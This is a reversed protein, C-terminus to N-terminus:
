SFDEEDGSLDSIEKPADNQNSKEAKNKEAAEEAALNEQRRNEEKQKRSALVREETVAEEFCLNFEDADMTEHKVLYDAIFDLVLRRESLIKKAIEYGNKIIRIVEADIKAAIEESYNRSTGLDRGLFVEEHEDGYLIPGLQESMGYRMVMSRAIKSAREIDNSAGTSYNGDGTLEEAVRGALLMAIEAQMENRYMSVKDENPVAVTVGLTRGSPIISIHRVPDLGPLEHAIIAHGAEHYATNRKEHANLILSRKSPGVLEKMIADEIDNMNIVSKKRRAALLAAENLINALDAGTMGATSRAIVELDVDNGLPKNRAHVKLIETRGKIDPRNVTVQRDFRGPRLLAPDLIDPRNTAAIVIVDDNVGFGDMEVLLQNLTQEKEDHGGGLGAGRQRGVADIEDIFIICPSAKKATEFLDRVRSAGVGVYLEVFDSGSISYFPVGSEGAVAKALLTKGTGPPGVLLVGRPIRAGLRSFQDPAKLFEVVEQLEAKEEDAGAVDAFTVKHKEDSGLKTRAKSFSNIRGSFGGGAGGNGNMGNKATKTFFFWWLVVLGLIVLLFPILSAWWPYTTTSYNYRKLTGAQMQADITEDLDNYFLAVDMLTHYYKTGEVTFHLTNDKVDFESVKGQNFFEVVNSYDKIEKEGGSQFLTSAFFLVLAIVVIWILLSRFGKKM